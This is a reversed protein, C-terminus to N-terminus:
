CGERLAEATTRGLSRGSPRSDARPAVNWSHPQDAPSTRVGVHLTQYMCGASSAVQRNHARVHLDELEIAPTARRASETWGAHAAKLLSLFMPTLRTRAPPYRGVGGTRGLYKRQGARQASTGAYPCLPARMASRKDTSRVPPNQLSSVSFVSVQDCVSTMRENCAM